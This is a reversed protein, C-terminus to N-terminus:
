YKTLPLLEFFCFYFLYGDHAPMHSLKHYIIDTMVYPFGVIFDEGCIECGDGYNEQKYNIECDASCFPTYYVHSPKGDIITVQGFCTVSRGTKGYPVFCSEGCSLCESRYDDYREDDGLLFSECDKHCLVGLDEVFYCEDDSYHVYRDCAFCTVEEKSHYPCGRLHKHSHDDIGVFGRYRPSKSIDILQLCLNCWGKERCEEIYNKIDAPAIISVNQDTLTDNLKDYKLLALFCLEKLTLM